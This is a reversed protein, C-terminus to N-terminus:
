IDVYILMGVNYQLYWLIQDVSVGVLAVRVLVSDGTMLGIAALIM